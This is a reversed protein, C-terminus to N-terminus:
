GLVGFSVAVGLITVAIGILQALTVWSPPRGDIGARGSGLETASDRLEVTNRVIEYPWLALPVGILLVLFGFPELVVM